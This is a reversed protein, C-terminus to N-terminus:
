VSVGKDKENGETKEKEEEKMFEHFSVGFVGLMLALVGALAMRLKINTEVFSDTPPVAEAIFKVDSTQHVETIRAKEVETILMNYTQQVDRIQQELEKIVLEKEWVHDQLSKVEKKLDEYSEQYYDLRVELSGITLEKQLAEMKLGRYSSAEEEYIQRYTAIDSELSEIEQTRRDRTRYLEELREKEQSILREYYDIMLPLQHFSIEIDVLRDRLTRYIPNVIEDVMRIEQLMLLEEPKLLKEWVVDESLSRKLEWRDPEEALLVRTEEREGEKEELLERYESLSTQYRQLNERALSIERQLLELKYEEKLDLLEEQVSLYNERAQILERNGVGPYLDGKWRGDMEKESIVETLRTYEARSSGLDTKLELINTEYRDLRNLKNDLEKKRLDLRAEKRVDVLEKRAKRLKEQTDEFRGKIIESVESIEARRIEQTLQMFNSAWANAIGSAKEPDTDQVKLEFLPAQIREERDRDVRVVIEERGKVELEMKEAIKAPSLLEGDEDTLKLEKIIKRRMDDTEALTRYTDIPLTAIELETRYRPPLILLTSSAQYQPPPATVISHLGVIIVAFLCLSIIIWKKGYLMKLYKRLDIEYEEEFQQHEDTM